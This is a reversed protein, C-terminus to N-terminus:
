RLGLWLSCGVVGACRMDVFCICELEREAFLADIIMELQHGDIADSFGRDV